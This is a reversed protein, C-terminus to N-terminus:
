NRVAVLWGYWTRSSLPANAGWAGSALISLGAQRLLLDMEPLFLFRMHHSENFETYASTNKDKIFVHYNVVVQNENPRLGPEAVRTVQVIEDELRKVRVVPPDSLVAPGYWFDFLFLGGPRLHRAATAFAAALDANGTQSSMVHFLSVVADYTRGTAVSRVDGRQFQLRSAIQSPQQQARDLAQEVMAQSLDVGDVTWGLKAFEVAHRGTGCGLELLRGGAVGQNVLQEHVYCAEVAYDKDRYLLDYYRAYHNFVSV